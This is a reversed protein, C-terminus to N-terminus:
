ILELSLVKIKVNFLFLAPVPRYFNKFFTGGLTFSVEGPILSGILDESKTFCSNPERGM